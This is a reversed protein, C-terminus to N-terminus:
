KAIRKKKDEICPDNAPAKSAFDFTKSTTLKKSDLIRIPSQLNSDQSKGCSLQILHSSFAQDIWEELFVDIVRIIEEKEKRSLDCHDLYPLDDEIDHM